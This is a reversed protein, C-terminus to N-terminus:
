RKIVRRQEEGLYFFYVGAPLRSMDVELRGNGPILVVKETIPRGMGDYLAPRLDSLAESEVYFVERVPNPYLRLGPNESLLVHRVESYRRTGDLDILGVRYYWSGRQSLRDEFHYRHHGGETTGGPVFGVNRWDFGDSSRHVEYGSVATENRVEWELQIARDAVAEVEFREMDVPLVGSADFSLVGVTMRSGDLHGTVASLAYTDGGAHTVGAIPSEDSFFGDNNTDIILALKGAEGPDYGPLEFSVDIAGVSVPTYTLNTESIRWTRDLLAETVAPLDSTRSFTLAGGDHGWILYEDVDLDDPNKVTLVGSGQAETIATAADMRGIGAIDFDFDGQAPDDQKYVDTTTLSLGYKGALYNNVLLRELDNVAYNFHIVEAYDAAIYGRYNNNLAGITLVQNSNPLSASSERFSLKHSDDKYMTSRSAEPRSGDFDWSLLYNENNQFTVSSLATRNNQTHVDLNMKQGTWFFWTYAYEIDTTYTIRKGLIGKPDNGLNYPRIVVFYSISSTNDLIDVDDVLLRDDVGDLRVIPMGNLASTTHYVPRQVATDQRAHNDNGSLDAWDTLVDGEALDLADTRLWLGNTAANGVGGPGTQAFLTTFYLFAGLWLATSRLM